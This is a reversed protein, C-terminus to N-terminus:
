TADATQTIASTAPSISPEPLILMNGLRPPSNRDIFENQTPLKVSALRLAIPPINYTASSSTPCTRTGERALEERIPVGGLEFLVRGPSVRSM